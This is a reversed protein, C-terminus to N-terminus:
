LSFAHGLASLVGEGTLKSFDPHFLFNLGEKAGDLTIARVDLVLIILILIPMLIKAYKEIGDKVGIIVIAMTMLMFSLQYVIPLGPQEIFQTFMSDLEDPSKSAFSDTVSKIIYDISWGAVVGYFSLIMVAAAVGLVGVLKWPSNPALNKFAGFVNSRSKRGIMFESLMIPLGILAIFGLYVFLFAAGGYVGTIYPFKWINGLGVASGAAAAIVGLRSTFVDRVQPTKDSKM